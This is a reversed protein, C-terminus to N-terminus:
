NKEAAIRIVFPDEGPHPALGEGEIEEIINFGIARLESIIESRDIFRRYHDTIFENKGVEKGQGYLKDKTSRVEIFFFGKPLLIKYAWRLTRSAAEKDVAHLSFRSYVVDFLETNQRQELRTFDGIFFCGSGKRQLSKIAVESLDCATIDHGERLFFLADRGNGCGLEFIKSKQPLKKNCYVAFPSPFDVARNDLYFGDWFERDDKEQLPIKPKM